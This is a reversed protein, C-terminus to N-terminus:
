KLSSKITDRALELVRKYENYYKSPRDKAFVSLADDFSYWTPKRGKEKTTQTSVVKLLHAALLIEIGRTKMDQKLHVFTTLQKKNIEGSAGAEEFAERQAAEWSDETEEIHGKPFIWRKGSSQVLLFEIKKKSVRYCVAASQTPKSNILNRVVKQQLFLAAVFLAAGLFMTLFVILRATESAGYFFIGGLLSLVLIVM